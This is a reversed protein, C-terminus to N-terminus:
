VSINSNVGSYIIRVYCVKKIDEPISKVNRKKIKRELQKNNDGVPSWLINYIGGVDVLREQVQSCM